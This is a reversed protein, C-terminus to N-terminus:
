ILSFFPLPYKFRDRPMGNSINFVELSRFSGATAGICRVISSSHDISGSVAGKQQCASGLNEAIVIIPLNGLSIQIKNQFSLIAITRPKIGNISHTIEDVVVMSTEDHLRQGLYMSKGAM